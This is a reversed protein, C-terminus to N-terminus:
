VSRRADVALAAGKRGSESACDSQLRAHLNAICHELYEHSYAVASIAMIRSVLELPEHAPEAFGFDRVEVSAPRVGDPRWTGERRREGILGEVAANGVYPPLLRLAPARAQAVAAATARDLEAKSVQEGGVVAARQKRVVGELVGALAENNRALRALAAFDIPAPAAVASARVFDQLAALEEPALAPVGYDTYNKLRFPVVVLHELALALRLELLVADGDEVCRDYCDRTLIPVVAQCKPLEQEITRIINGDGLNDVDLFVEYQLAVLKDKILHVLPESERSWRYSLFIRKVRRLAVERRFALARKISPVAAPPVVLLRQVEEPAEGAAVLRAAIPLLRLAIAAEPLDLRGDEDLDAACYALALARWRGRPSLSAASVAAGPGDSTCIGISDIGTEDTGVLAYEVFAEPLIKDEGRRVLRAFLQESRAREAATPKRAVEARVRARSATAEPSLRQPAEASAFTHRGRFRFRGLEIAAAVSADPLGAFCPPLEDATAETAEIRLRVLSTRLFAAPSVRQGARALAAARMAVFVAADVATAEDGTALAGVHALPSSAVADSLLGAHVVGSGIVAARLRPLGVASRVAATFSASEAGPAPEWLALAATEASGLASWGPDPTSSYSAGM